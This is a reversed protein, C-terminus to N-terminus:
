KMKIFIRTPKGHLQFEVFEGNEDIVQRTTVFRQGDDTESVSVTRTACDISLAADM